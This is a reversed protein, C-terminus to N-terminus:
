PQQGPPLEREAQTLAIIVAASSLDFLRAQTLAAIADLPHHQQVDYDGIQLWAQSNEPQLRVARVLEQYAEAPDITSYLASLEFLPEVSLPDATAATRADAIAARTDGRILATTADADADASRLPQWILWAGVLAIAALGALLASAGPRRALRKRPRTHGVPSALPGRGALWGACALPPIAVAPIFWTWDTSSQLGFMVVIALLTMLGCREAAQEPELAAWTTRFGVARGAAVSWAILLALSLAVGILGFDAFTEIEYSHAHQVIWPDTTYRTRATGYGLAGVGKLLAHEGVTLGERWYRARSNGFEVLRASTDGV